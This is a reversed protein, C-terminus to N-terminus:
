NGGKQFFDRNLLYAVLSQVRPAIFIMATVALAYSVSWSRLWIFLFHPVFGVNIAILTFSILATTIAGMILAFTIRQKM